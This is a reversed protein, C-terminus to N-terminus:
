VAVTLKPPVDRQPKLLTKCSKDILKNSAQQASSKPKVPPQTGCCPNDPQNQYLSSRKINPNYNPDLSKGHGHVKPMELGALRTGHRTVINLIGQDNM